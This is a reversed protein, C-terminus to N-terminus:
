SDFPGSLSLDKNSFTKDPSNDSRGDHGNTAEAKLDIYRKEIRVHSPSYQTDAARWDKAAEKMLTRKEVASLM